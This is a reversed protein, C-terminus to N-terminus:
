EQPAAKQVDGGPSQQADDIKLVKTESKGGEVVVFSITHDDKFRLDTVGVGRSKFVLRQRSPEEIRDNIILVHVSVEDGAASCLPRYVSALSKANPSLAPTSNAYFMGEAAKGIYQGKTSGIWLESKGDFGVPVFVYFWRDNQGQHRPLWQPCIGPLLKVYPQSDGSQWYVWGKYAALRQSGTEDVATASDWLSPRKEIDSSLLARENGNVFGHKCGVVIILIATLAFCLYKNM